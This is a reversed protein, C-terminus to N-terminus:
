NFKFLSKSEIKEPNQDGTTKISNSISDKNVTKISNHSITTNEPLFFTKPLKLHTALNVQKTDPLIEKTVILAKDTGLKININTSSPEAIKEPSETIAKADNTTLDDESKNNKQDSDSNDITIETNPIETDLTEVCEEFVSKFTNAIEPTKFRACLQEPNGTGESYDAHTYWVWSKNSGLSPELRMDKSIYHNACVKHIQDRRMIIRFRNEEVTHKLIKIEGVGREKWQKATKDFRFLKCREKYTIEENEEGTVITVDKSLTIVPKFDVDPTFEEPNENGDENDNNSLAKAFLPKSANPFIFNSPKNELASEDSTTQAALSAFSTKHSADQNFKFVYNTDTKDSSEQETVNEHTGSSLNMLSASSATITEEKNSIFAFPMKLEKKAEDVVKHSNSGDVTDTTCGEVYELNCEALFFNRPLKLRTAMQIKNKDPVLEKIFILQSDFKEEIKPSQIPINRGTETSNVDKFSPLDAVDTANSAIKNDAKEFKFVGLSADVKNANAVGIADFSFNNVSKAAADRLNSNQIESNSCLNTNGGSESAIADNTDRSKLKVDNSSDTSKTGVDASDSSYSNGKAMNESKSDPEQIDCGISELCNEFASKFTNAIEPTKFRACLQEPNGTGESYDAHTYWVWSKNSGLSPGLRMDKSIYHNACVKHIQDRRMIIRFRNEEVTHKLIKIEGVGREKWQKATKDFRFLKCREKYTIEENEEGTVITVDKSLTIIPKFDVDPTFEEPNENGDENDNNSLAKAFLPKSANPFIISSPKNESTSIDSTTQAALSAFSTKHSADQNFKFMYNTEPVESKDNNANKEVSDSSQSSLSPISTVNNDIKQNFKFLSKSEIKEPNQDGTTKISNSISDKNVTKISNHSITTNEPLFFTKPLKLHTALNVQKTDPLIEKTVILAKDTGLKININTSSPEAIKEPSETIAKADNTTLDDESKNNKQDSDSNDITIETNSIETDLTEVCEEFVSKFTNAIEPTKFRACLQEPNGTGESYDAHTYWVWNKNSGLSPGLRMDKSIYHNACVKHIQDRRMIIRFRNEEVTHKLIKIEGVGREKWQKATKDFRFLKCRDDYIAEEDEEGTIINAVEPLTVVPKFNTDPTFDEPSQENGEDKDTASSSRDKDKSGGMRDHDSMFKFSFQQPQSEPVNPKLPMTFSFLQGFSDKKENSEDTTSEFTMPRSQLGSSFTPFAEIPQQRLSNNQPSLNVQSSVFSQPNTSDNAKSWPQFLNYNEKWTGRIDDANGDSSAETRGTFQTPTSTETRGTFQTAMSTETHGTFQTATSIETHGTFQTAINPGTAADNESGVITPDWSLPPLNQNAVDITSDSRENRNYVRASVIDSISSLHDNGSTKAAVSSAFTPLKPVDISNGSQLEKSDGFNSIVVNPNSTYSMRLPPINRDQLYESDVKTAIDSPSSTSNVNTPLDSSWKNNDSDFQLGSTTNVLSSYDHTQGRTTVPKNSRIDDVVQGKPFTDPLFGFKSKQSLNLDALVNQANFSGVTRHDQGKGFPVGNSDMINKMYELESELKSVKDKYQEIKQDRHLIEKMLEVKFDKATESESDYASTFSFEEHFSLGRPDNEAEIIKGEDYSKYLSLMNNLEKEVMTLDENTSEETVKSKELYNDLCQKAKELLSLKSDGNNSTQNFFMYIYMQFQNWLAEPVDLSEYHNLAEEVHGRQVNLEAIIMRCEYISIDLTSDSLIQFLNDELISPKNYQQDCTLEKLIIEWYTCCRSHYNRRWSARALPVILELHPSSGNQLRIIRLGEEVAKWNINRRKLLLYFMIVPRDKGDYLLLIENWWINQTSSITVIRSSTEELSLKSYSKSYALLFLFIQIDEQSIIRLKHYQAPHITVALRSFLTCTFVSVANLLDLESCHSLVWAIKELSRENYLSDSYNDIGVAFLSIKTDIKSFDADKLFFSAKRNVRSGFLTKVIFYVGENTAFDRYYYDLEEKTQLQNFASLILRLNCIRHREINAWPIDTTSPCRITATQLFSTLFCTYAAKEAQPLALGGSTAKYILLEACRWYYQGRLENFGLNWTNAYSGNTRSKYWDAEFLLSDFRLLVSAVEKWNSKHRIMSQLLNNISLMMWFLADMYSKSDEGEAPKGLSELYDKLVSTVVWQWELMKTVTWSVKTPNTVYDYAERLRGTVVYHRMLKIHFGAEDDSTSAATILFKEINEPHTEKITLLREELDDADAKNILLLQGISLLTEKDKPNIRHARVYSNWAKDKMDRHEQLKGMFRHARYDEENSLIYSSLHKIARSTDGVQHCLRAAALGNRPRNQGPPNNMANLIGNFNGRNWQASKM